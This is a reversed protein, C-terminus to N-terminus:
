RNFVLRKIDEVIDSSAQLIIGEILIENNYSILIFLDVGTLNILTYM